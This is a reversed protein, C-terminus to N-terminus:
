FKTKPIVRFPLNRADMRNDTPGPSTLDPVPVVPLPKPTVDPISDPKVEPKSDPTVASKPTLLTQLDLKHPGQPKVEAKPNPVVRLQDGPKVEARPHPTVGPQHHDPKPAIDLRMDPRPSPTVRPSPRNDAPVKMDPCHCHSVNVNVHVNAKADNTVSVEPKPLTPMLHLKRLDPLVASSDTRDTAVSLKSLDLKVTPENVNLKQLPKEAEPKVPLKGVDLKVPQDSANLKQLLKDAEPKVLLKGVDLKAPPEHVEPKVPVQRSDPLVAPMLDKGSLMERMTKFVMELMDFLKTLAAGPIMVENPSFRSKDNHLPTPSVTEGLRRLNSSEGAKSLLLSHRDLASADIKVLSPNNVSVSM